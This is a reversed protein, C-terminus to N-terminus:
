LMISLGGGLAVLRERRREEGPKEKKATSISGTLLCCYSTECAWKVLIVAVYEVIGSSTGRSAGCSDLGLADRFTRSAATNSRAAPAAAAAVATFDWVM